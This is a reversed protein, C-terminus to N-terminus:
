SRFEVAAYYAFAPLHFELRGEVKVPELMVPAEQAMTYVAASRWPRAPVMSVSENPRSAFAVLQLLAKKGDPAVSYHEWLSGANFLTVPDNRRRVLNHVDAALFYPDDWDRIAVAVSGKGLSRLEYGAVPCQSTKEGPFQAALAHPVILM